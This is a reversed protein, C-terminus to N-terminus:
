DSSVPCPLDHMPVVMFLSERNLGQDRTMRSCLPKILGTDPTRLLVEHQTSNSFPIAHEMAMGAM